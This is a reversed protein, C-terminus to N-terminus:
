VVEGIPYTCLICGVTLENKYSRDLEGQRLIRANYCM